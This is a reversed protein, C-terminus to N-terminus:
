KGGESRRRHQEIESAMQELLGGIRKQYSAVIFAVMEDDTPEYEEHHSQESTEVETAGIVQAFPNVGRERLQAITRAVAAQSKGRLAERLPPDTFLSRAGIFWELAADGEVVPAGEGIGLRLARDKPLILEIPAVGVAAALLLAETITAERTSEPNNPNEIRNVAFKGLPVGWESVRQAVAEQTLGKVSRRHEGLQRGFAERPTEATAM